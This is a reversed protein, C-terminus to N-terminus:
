APTNIGTSASVNVLYMRKAGTYRRFHTATQRRACPTTEAVKKGDLWVEYIIANNGKQNDELAAMAMFKTAAGNLAVGLFGEGYMAFGHRYIM